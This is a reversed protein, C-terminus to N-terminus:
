IKKIKRKISVLVQLENVNYGKARLIEVQPPTFIIDKKYQSTDGRVHGLIVLLSGRLLM